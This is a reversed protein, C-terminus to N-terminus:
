VSTPVYDTERTQHIYAHLELGNVRDRIKDLEEVIEGGKWIIEAHDRYLLNRLRIITQELDSAISM